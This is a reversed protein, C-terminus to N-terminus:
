VFDLFNYNNPVTKPFRRSLFHPIMEEDGYVGFNLEFNGKVIGRYCNKRLNVILAQLNPWHCEAFELEEPDVVKISAVIIYFSCINLERLNPVQFKRLSKLSVLWNDCMELHVLEPM